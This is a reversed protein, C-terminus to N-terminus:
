KDWEEWPFVVWQPNNDKDIEYGWYDAKFPSPRNNIVAAYKINKHSVSNHKIHQFTAGTDNIDDIVLIKENNDMAKYLADLNNTDVHDRLRVDIPIHRRNIRHSLYIGPILGGRNVGMIVDPMWNSHVLKDEIQILANRMHINTFYLKEITETM